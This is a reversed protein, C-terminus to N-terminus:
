KQLLDITFFDKITQNFNKLTDDLTEKNLLVEMPYTTAFFRDKISYNTQNKNILQHKSNDFEESWIWDEKDHKIAFVFMLLSESKEVPAFGTLDNKDQTESEYFGTDSIQLISLAFAKDNLREYDEGFYFEFEYSYLFDWGWTDKLVKLKAEGSKYTSFTNGFHKEGRVEPMSFKNQIYFMINLIREQYEKLLRHAKRVNLLTTTLDEPSEIKNDM